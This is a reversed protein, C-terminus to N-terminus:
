IARAQSSAWFGHITGIGPVVFSYRSSSFMSASDTSSVGSSRFSISLAAEPIVTCPSSVGFVQLPHGTESRYAACARETILTAIRSGVRNQHRIDLHLCCCCERREGKVEKHPGQDSCRGPSKSKTAVQRGLGITQIQPHWEVQIDGRVTPVVGRAWELHGLGPAIRCRGYGLTLPQVGLV